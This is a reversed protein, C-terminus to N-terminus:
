EHVLQRMQDLRAQPEPYGTLKAEKKSQGELIAELAEMGARSDGTLETATRDCWLEVHLSGRHSARMMSGIGSWTLGLLGLGAWTQTGWPELRLLVCACAISICALVWAFRRWGALGESKSRKLDVAHAVEHAIMWQIAPADLKDFSAQTVFIKNSHLIATVHKKGFGGTLRYVPKAPVAARECIEKAATTWPDDKPASEPEYMERMPLLVCNTLAPIFFMFTLPM